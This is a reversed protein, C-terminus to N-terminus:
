RGVATDDFTAALVCGQLFAARARLEQGWGVGRPPERAFFSQLRFLFEERIQRFTGPPAVNQELLFVLSIAVAM